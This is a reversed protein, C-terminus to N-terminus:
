ETERTKEDHEHQQPELRTEPHQLVPAEENTPEQDRKPEIERTRARQAQEALLHWCSQISPCAETLRAM